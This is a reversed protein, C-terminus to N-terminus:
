VLLAPLTEATTFLYTGAPAAESFGLAFRPGFGAAATAIVVASESSSIGNQDHRKSETEDRDRGRM